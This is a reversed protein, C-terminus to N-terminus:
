VGVPGFTVSIESVGSPSVPMTVRAFARVRARTRARACVCVCRCSLRPCNTRTMTFIAQSKQKKATTQPVRMREKLCGM